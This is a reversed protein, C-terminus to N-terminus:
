AAQGNAVGALPSGGYFTKSYPVLVRVFRTEVMKDFDGTFKKNGPVPQPADAGVALSWLGSFIVFVLLLALRKIHLLM